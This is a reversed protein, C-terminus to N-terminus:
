TNAVKIPPGPLISGDIGLVGTYAYVTIDLLENRTGDVLRWNRRLKGNLETRILKESTLQAEAEAPLDPNFTIKGQHIDSYIICKAEDTACWMYGHGRGGRLPKDFSEGSYGRVIEIPPNKMLFADQFVRTVGLNIWDFDYGGDISIRMPRYPSLLRRLNAFTVEPTSRLIVDWALLHKKELEKDFAWVGWEIRNKQVDVGATIYTPTFPCEQRSIQSIDAQAIEIEEYPWALVQTNLEQPTYNSAERVTKELTTNFSYLQSLWFSKHTANPNNEVWRGRSISMLRDKETWESGCVPCWISEGKVHAWELIHEDDCHVCKTLWMSQSGDMFETEIQSFGHMTPTSSVILKGDDFSITRQRLSSILTAGKYDDIEDACVRRASTGHKSSISRPTTMTVYGNGDFSFGDPPLKGRNNRHVKLEIEECGALVPELKERLFKDLGQQSAHMFLLSTPSQDICWLLYIALLLTKGIQSSLMLSVQTVNPDAMARLIEKQYPDLILNGARDSVRVIINEEAWEVIDQPENFFQDLNGLERLFNPNIVQM